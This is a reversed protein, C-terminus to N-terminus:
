SDITSDFYVHIALPVECSDLIGYIGNRFFIRLPYDNMDPFSQVPAIEM